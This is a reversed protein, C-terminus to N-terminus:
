DELISDAFSKLDSVDNSAVVAAATAVPAEYDEDDDEDVQITVKKTAKKAVPAPAEEVEVEEEVVSLNSTSGAAEEYGPLIAEPTEEAILSLNYLLIERLEDYSKQRYLSFLDYGLEDYNESVAEALPSRDATISVEGTEKNKTKVNNFEVSYKTMKGEGERLINMWVGADERLDASLSTPDQNYDTIYEKIRKKMDQHATSKLELIGVNGSKDCANYAYSYAVRINWQVDYLGKLKEKIKKDAWGKAKMKGKLTEVTDKLSEAYEKVPCEKEGISLPSSFPTRKGTEPNILWAVAWRKFVYNNHTDVDGFPPLVRYVNSGDEVKHRKYERSTKLSEQNITIKGM